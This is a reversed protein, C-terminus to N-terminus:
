PNWFVKYTSPEKQKPANSNTELEISYWPLSLPYKRICQVSVPLQAGPLAPDGNIPPQVLHNPAQVPNNPDFIVPFGTRRYDTYQDVSSGFSSIWKQTMISELQQTPKADYQALISNIYNNAAATGAIPPVVQAPKVYKTVVYDVQNFSEQIAAQFTARANGTIVGAQMLEAEIYLIDAYTIFRYPAAGTGSLATVGVATTGNMAGKGDDYRGGVPYIGLQTQFNQQNQGQNPGVSGFYIAIFGGDRYETSNLPPTTPLVQNFFYYPIRPDTIGTYINPNYGRLIEYFWPSIYVTRQSAYYEGFGPNRDDTAGNIGFPLLFSESTQSILNGGAILANVQASVDTILRQQLLLKLKISNAAKIWNSVSGNYIVDDTGPILPNAATTNSLDAIGKDLLAILQPYIASGKDFKPNKVNTLLKGADTYPVDAYADVMQSFGYAKLIEAIGVYKLNGQTTGESIIVNLNTIVSIYFETWNAAIYFDGGTAGYQDPDERVTTQHMYTALVHTLGGVTGNGYSFSIGANKEALPLLKSVALTTPNNPDTNIDLQKKCSTILIVVLVIYKLPRTM